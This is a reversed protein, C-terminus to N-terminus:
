YLGAVRTVRSLEATAVLTLLCALLSPASLCIVRDERMFQVFQLVSQDEKCPMAQLM